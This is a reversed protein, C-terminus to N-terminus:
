QPTHCTSSIWHQCLLVPAFKCKKVEPFVFLCPCFFTLHVNQVFGLAKINMATPRFVQQHWRLMLQLSFGFHLYYGYGWIIIMRNTCSNSLITEIWICSASHAWSSHLTHWCCVLALRLMHNSPWLHETWMGMMLCSGPVLLWDPGLQWFVNRTHSGCRRRKGYLARYNSLHVIFVARQESLFFPWYLDTTHLYRLM